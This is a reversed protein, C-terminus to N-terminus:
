FCLPQQAALGLRFTLHPPPLALASAYEKCLLLLPQVTM